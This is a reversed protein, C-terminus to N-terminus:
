INAGSNVHDVTEARTHQDTQEGIDITYRESLKKFPVVPKISERSDTVRCITTINGDLDIYTNNEPIIVSEVVDDMLIETSLCKRLVLCIQIGDVADFVSLSPTAADQYRSRKLKRNQQRPIYYNFIVYITILGGLSYGFYSNAKVDKQLDEFSFKYSNLPDYSASVRTYNNALDM